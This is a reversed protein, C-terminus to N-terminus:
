KNEEEEEAEPEIYFAHDSVNKPDFAKKIKGLWKHYDSYIPGLLMAPEAGPAIPVGLKNEIVAMVAEEIYKHAAKRSDPDIPDYQFIGEFHTFKNHEYPGGWFNEPNGDDHFYGEEVYKRRIQEGIRAGKVSFDWSTAAGFSTHFQGSPRFIRANYCQTILVLAFLPAYEDQILELFEGGTEDVIERLVREQYELERESESALVVNLYFRYKEMMEQMQTLYQYYENNTKTIMLPIAVPSCPRWVIYGIEAEGIRYVAEAQSKWDNWYILFVRFNEPIEMEYQPNEGRVELKEPGPWPYLKTACKTFVGLGGMTGHWGRMLGRLSPGPGDGCFWGADSGLAGLRLIEGTPTVWEVGLLNRNNMSTHYGKDGYGMMATCSALVSHNPGAGIIACDLGKKMAEAQLQMATVYPEVVAYMNKEDIEIIRNMRRLDLQIVDPLGVGSWFGWGTSHAKFKVNHEYCIKVVEQVEETSGPLVVAEPKHPLWKASDPNALDALYQFSYVTLIVPDDSINEPGVVSELKEYVNRPLVM